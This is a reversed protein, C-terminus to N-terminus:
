PKEKETEARSPSHCHREATDCRESAEMVHNITIHKAISVRVAVEDRHITVAKDAELGLRVKGRAIGLVIVRGPGDFVVGEDVKRTLILM